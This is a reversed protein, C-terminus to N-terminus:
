RSGAVRQCRESRREFQEKLRKSSKLLWAAESRSRQWQENSACFPTIINVLVNFEGGDKRCTRFNRNLKCGFLRYNVGTDERWVGAKACIPTRNVCITGGPTSSSNAYAEVVFPVSQGAFM